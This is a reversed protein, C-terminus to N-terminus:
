LGLSARARYGLVLAAGRARPGAPKRPGPCVTSWLRCRSACDIRLWILWNHLLSSCVSVCYFLVFLLFNSERRQSARPWPCVSSGEARQAWLLVAESCVVVSTSTSGCCSQFLSDGSFSLFVVPVMVPVHCFRQKKKGRTPSRRLLAFEKSHWLVSRRPPRTAPVCCRLLRCCDWSWAWHLGRLHVALKSKHLATLEAAM